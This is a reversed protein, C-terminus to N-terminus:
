LFGGFGIAFIEAARKFNKRVVYLLLILGYAIQLFRASAFYTVTKMFATLKSNTINYSVFQFVADDFNKENEAFVEHTIYAFLFLAGAFLSLVLLLGVPLQQFYRKLFSKPRM